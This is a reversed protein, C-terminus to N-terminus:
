DGSVGFQFKSTWSASKMRLHTKADNAASHENM